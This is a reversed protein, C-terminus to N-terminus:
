IARNSNFHADAECNLLQFNLEAFRQNVKVFNPRPNLSFPIFLVYSSNDTYMM